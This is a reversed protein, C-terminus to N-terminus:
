GKPATLAVYDARNRLRVFAPEQHLWDPWIGEDFADRLRAMASDPRGLLAAVRARYVTASWNVLAPSQAALWRDLSDALATEGREAALGALEGRFDVNTSDEAVLKRAMAEAEPYNGVMELACTATFREEITEREEAPRGRYWTVSRAAAQRAAISDGHYALERSVWNAVWGPTVVYEPRGDTYPALGIDSQTEVPLALSSDLLALVATPRGLAALATGREWVRTLPAGPLLHDTVSLEEQYRGLMHLAASVSGWYGSHTTDMSWGLDTEPNVRALVELERKPRNAWSAAAAAPMQAGANHPELDAQELTLRSMEENRGRCRADSIQLSVQDWRRLPPSRAGLVKAVSDVLGCDRTNAAVYAAAILAGTFATDRRAARLYLAKARPNDGHSYADQGDVYDRYADFPPIEGGSVSEAGHVDVASALATMVRSQLDNLGSVPARTSSLIPGVVRVIRGTRVDTVASQLFLTDGTRYYNGSVVMRAGTRRAVAVPDPPSGGVLRGQVAIAQPDVVDVLRTRVLGQSLWDQAMRGLPQLTSDGTRNDFVTVLVRPPLGTRDRKATAARVVLVLVVAAGLASALYLARRRARSTHSRAPPLDSVAPATEIAAAVRPQSGQKGRGDRIRAALATTEGSPTAGFETALRRTTAEYLRLAGGTDGGDDLLRM